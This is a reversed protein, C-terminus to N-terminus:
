YPISKKISVNRAMCSDVAEVYQARHFDKASQFHHQEGDGHQFRRPIQKPRSLKPRIRLLTSPRARLLHESTFCISTTENVNCIQRLANVCTVTTQAPISPTQLTSAVQECVNFINQGFSLGFYTSFKKLQRALGSATDRVTSKSSEKAISLLTSYLAEYNNLVASIAKTRVTWRTPCLLHPNQVQTANENIDKAIHQYQVMRTPLSRIFVALDQVVKLADSIIESEKVCDHLALDLTHNGYHIYLARPNESSIRAAVGNRSGAMNAAGDYTQWRCDDVTLNCRLLIDKLSTTITEADTKELEYMGLFDEYVSLDTTSIWRLVCTLQEKNSIDKSEDAILSFLQSKKRLDAVISRLVANGMM